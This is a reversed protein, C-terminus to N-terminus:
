EQSSTPNVLQTDKLICFHYTIENDSIKPLISRIIKGSVPYRSYDDLIEYYTCYGRESIHQLVGSLRYGNLTKQKCLIAKIADVFEQTSYKTRKM